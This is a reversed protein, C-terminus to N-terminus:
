IDLLSPLYDGNASFEPEEPKKLRTANSQHDHTDSSNRHTAMGASEELSCLRSLSKKKCRKWAAQIVCAAWTQWQPSYVRFTYQLKKSQFRRFQKAVFKLDDATLSFAEVESEAVITRTSNPLHLSPKPDLVWTLLEEGCFSGQGLKIQNFFGTQGGNTTVSDLKGRIIFLMENVPDGERMIVSDKTRLVPKLRVCVADLLRSDDMEKFLPVQGLFCHWM